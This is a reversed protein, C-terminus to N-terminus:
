PAKPVALVLQQRRGERLIVAHLLSFDDLALPERSRLVEDLLSLV